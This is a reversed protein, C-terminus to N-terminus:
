QAAQDQRDSVGPSRRAWGDQRVLREGSRIRIADEVPFVLIQGDGHDMSRATLAILDICRAVQDDRVLLQVQIRSAFDVSYEVGRYHRHQESGVSKVESISMGDIGIEELRERLTDLTHAEVTAEIKKMSAEEDFPAHVGWASDNLL